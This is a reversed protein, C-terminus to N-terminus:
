ENLAEYLAEYSAGSVLFIPSLLLDKAPHVLVSGVLISNKLKRVALSRRNFRTQNFIPHKMVGEQLLVVVTRHRRYQSVCFKAAAPTEVALRKTVRTTAAM